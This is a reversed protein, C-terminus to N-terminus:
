EQSEKTFYDKQNWQCQNQWFEKFNLPNIICLRHCINQRCHRRAYYKHTHTPFKQFTAWLLKTYSAPAEYADIKLPHNVTKKTKGFFRKCINGSQSFIFVHTYNYDIDAGSGIIKFPYTYFM